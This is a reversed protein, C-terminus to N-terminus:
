PLFARVTTILVAMASAIAAFAALWTARELRRDARERRRRDREGLLDNVFYTVHESSARLQDDIEADTYDIPAKTM